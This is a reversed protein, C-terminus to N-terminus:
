VYLSAMLNILFYVIPNCKQYILYFAKVYKIIIFDNLQEIKQNSEKVTNRVYKHVIDKIIFYVIILFFLCCSFLIFRIKFVQLKDKNFNHTLFGLSITLPTNHVDSICFPYGTICYTPSLNFWLCAFYRKLSIPSLPSIYM